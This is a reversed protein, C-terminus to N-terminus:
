GGIQQDRDGRHRRMEDRRHHQRQVVVAFEPDLRDVAAVLDLEVAGVDDAVLGVPTHSPPSGAVILTMVTPCSNTRSPSGTTGTGSGPALAEHVGDM